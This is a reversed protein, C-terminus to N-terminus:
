RLSQLKRSAVYPDLRALLVYAVYSRASHWWARTRRWSQLQIEHARGVDDGFEAELRGALAASPIRLLLEFNIRLSRVDLNASGMYVVDDTVVAKAHLVQPLYEYLRVRSRLLRTFHRESAWRSMPVDSRAALMIRVDGRRAAARIARGLRRSPLFYAAWALCRASERIDRALRRRLDGSPCGPGSLLLETGAAPSTREYGRWGSWFGSMQARGFPALQWMREFSEALLTVVPGSVEVALDKWGREVGNGDYEDAINLGGVIARQDCRLLKRHNRFSLRLLRKPNFRRLEGGAALFDEFYDDPLGDSGFADVLVRVRVGRRAAHLLCARFRDGVADPKYIYTELEVSERAGAILACMRAYAVTGGVLLESQPDAPSQAIAPTLNDIAVHKRAPFQRSYLHLPVFGEDPTYAM